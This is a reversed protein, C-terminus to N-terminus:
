PRRVRAHDGMDMPDLAPDPVWLYGLPINYSGIAPSPGESSEFEFPAVVVTEEPM